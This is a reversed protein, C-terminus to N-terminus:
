KLIFIQESFLIRYFELVFIVKLSIKLSIKLKNM